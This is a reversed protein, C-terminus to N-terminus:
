KMKAELRALDEETFPRERYFDYYFGSETPPGVGPHADPFLELVAAALLHASSHRYVELAEPSKPTIFQIPVSSELPTALDVLRGDIKAVLAEAALRPGITKAVELATIGQPFEKLTGDPFTLQINPM